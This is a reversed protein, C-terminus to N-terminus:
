NEIDFLFSFLAYLSVLLGAYEGFGQDQGGEKLNKYWHYEM